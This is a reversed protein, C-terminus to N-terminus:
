LIRMGGNGDNVVHSGAPLNAGPPIVLDAPQDNIVLCEEGVTVGEGFVIRGPKGSESIVTRAVVAARIRVREHIEILGNIETNAGIVSGNSVVVPGFIGVDTGILVFDGILPHRPKVKDTIGGLTCPYIVCGVGIRGTQGTTIGRHPHELFTADGIVTEPHMDTQYLSAAYEAIVRPLFPTPPAQQDLDEIFGGLALTHAIDHLLLAKWGPYSRKVLRRQYSFAYEFGHERLFGLYDEQRRSYIAQDIAALLDLNGLDERRAENRLLFADWLAPDKLSAFVNWLARRRFAPLHAILNLAALHAYERSTADELEVQFFSQLISQLPPILRELENHLDIRDPPQISSAVFLGPMVAEQIAEVIGAVAQWSASGTGVRLGHWSPDFSPPTYRSRDEPSYTEDLQCVIRQLFKDNGRSVVRSSHLPVSAM